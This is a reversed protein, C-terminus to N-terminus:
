NKEEKQSQKLNNETYHKYSENIIKNQRIGSCNRTWTLIEKIELKAMGSISNNGIKM